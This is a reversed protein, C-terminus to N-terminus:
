IMKRKIGLLSIMFAAFDTLNFMLRLNKWCEKWNVDILDPLQLLSYGLFIGVYGGTGSYFAEFGFDQVNEIDQFTEATYSVKLVLGNM